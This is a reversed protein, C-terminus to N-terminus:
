VLSGDRLIGSPISRMLARWWCGLERMTLGVMGWKPKQRRRSRSLDEDLRERTRGSCKRLVEKFADRGDDMWDHFGVMEGDGGKFFILGIAFKHPAAEVCTLNHLEHESGRVAAVPEAEAAHLHDHDM